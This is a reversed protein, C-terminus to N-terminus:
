FFGAPRGVSALLRQSHCVPRGRRAARLTVVVLSSDRSRCIVCLDILFVVARVRPWSVFEAPVAPCCFSRNVGAITLPPPPRVSAAMALVTTQVARLPVRPPRAQRPAPPSVADKTLAAALGSVRRSATLHGGRRCAVDVCRVCVRACAAWM